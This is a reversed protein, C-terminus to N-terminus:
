PEVMQDDFRGLQQSFQFPIHMHTYRPLRNLPSAPPASRCRPQSPCPSLPCSLVSTRTGPLGQGANGSPRGGAAAPSSLRAGPCGSCATRARLRGRRSSGRDQWATLCKTGGNVEGGGAVGKSTFGVAGSPKRPLPSGGAKAEGPDKRRPTRPSGCAPARTPAGEERSSTSPGSSDLRTSRIPGTPDVSGSM